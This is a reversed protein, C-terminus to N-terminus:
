RATYWRRHRLIHVLIFFAAAFGIKGHWGIFGFHGHQLWLPVAAVGSCVTLLFFSATLKLGPSRHTRFRRCWNGVGQWNLRVHWLVAGTLLCCLVIHLWAWVAAPIGHFPQGHLVELMIGSALVVPALFLLGTNCIRLYTKKM